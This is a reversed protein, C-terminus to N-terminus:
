LEKFIPLTNYHMALSKCHYNVKVVIYTRGEQILLMIFSSAECYTNM